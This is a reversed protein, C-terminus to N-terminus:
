FYFFFSGENMIMLQKVIKYKYDGGQMYAHAYKLIDFIVLLMCEYMYSPLLYFFSGFIVTCKAFHSEHVCVVLHIMTKLNCSMFYIERAKLLIM